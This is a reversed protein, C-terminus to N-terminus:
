YGIDFFSTLKNITFDTFIASKDSYLYAEYNGSSMATHATLAYSDNVFFEVFEGDNVIKVQFKTQESSGIVISSNVKHNNDNPSLVKMYTYKSDKTLLVQYQKNG